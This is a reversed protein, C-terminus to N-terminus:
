EKQWEDGNKIVGESVMIKFISRVADSSLGEVTGYSAWAQRVAAFMKKYERSDDFAQQTPYALWGSNLDTDESTFDQLSFKIEPSRYHTGRIVVYFYKRKVSVVEGNRAIGDWNRAGNGTPQLYVEMGPYVEFPDTHKSTVAIKM